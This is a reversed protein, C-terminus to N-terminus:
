FVTSIQIKNQKFLNALTVEEIKVSEILSINDNSFYESLKIDGKWVARGELSNSIFYEKGKYTFEIERGQELYFLLHQYSINKGTPVDEFNTQDNM